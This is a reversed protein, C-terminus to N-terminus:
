ARRAGDARVLAAVEVVVLAADDGLVGGAAEGAEEDGRGGCVLLLPGRGRAGDVVCLSHAYRRLLPPPNARSSKVPPPPSHAGVALEAWADGDDAHVETSLKVVEAIAKDLDSGPAALAALQERKLAQRWRVAQQLEGRSTAPSSQLQLRQAEM